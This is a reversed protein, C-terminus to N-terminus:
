GQEHRDQGLYRWFPLHRPRALLKSLDYEVFASHSPRGCMNMPILVHVLAKSFEPARSSTWRRASASTSACYAMWRSLTCATWSAMQRHLMLACCIVIMVTVQQAHSCVPSSRLDVLRLWVAHVRHSPHKVQLINHCFSPPCVPLKWTASFSGFELERRLVVGKGGRQQGSARIGSVTMFPGWLEM